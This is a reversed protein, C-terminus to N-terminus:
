SLFFLLGSMKKHQKLIFIDPIITNKDLLIFRINETNTVPYHGPIIGHLLYLLVPILVYIHQIIYCPVPIFASSLSIAPMSSSPYDIPM